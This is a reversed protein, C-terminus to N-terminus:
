KKIAEEKLHPSLVKSSNMQKQRGERRLHRSVKLGSCMVITGFVMYFPALYAQFPIGTEGPHKLFLFFRYGWIALLISGSRILSIAGKKNLVKKKLGVRLISSAIWLSLLSVLLHPAFRPDEAHGRVVRYFRVGGVM